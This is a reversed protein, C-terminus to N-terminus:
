RPGRLAREYSDLFRMYNDWAAGLAKMDLLPVLAKFDESVCMREITGALVSFEAGIRYAAPQYPQATDQSM